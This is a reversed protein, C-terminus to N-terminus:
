ELRIPYRKEIRLIVRITIVYQGHLIRDAYGVLIFQSFLAAIFICLVVILVNWQFYMIFKIAMMVLGAM